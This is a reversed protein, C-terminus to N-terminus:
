TAQDIDPNSWQSLDATRTGAIFGNGIESLYRKLTSIKNNSIFLDLMWRVLREQNLYLNQTLLKELKYQIQKKDGNLITRIEKVADSRFREVKIVDRLNETSDSISPEIMLKSVHDDSLVTTPIKIGQFYRLWQATSISTQKQQNTLVQVLQVDLYTEPLTQWYIAIYQLYSSKHISKVTFNETTFEGLRKIVQHYKPFENQIQLQHQLKFLWLRSIDDIIILRTQYVEGVEDEITVIENGYDSSLLKIPIVLMDGFMQYIPKGDKLSNYIEKLIKEDNYGAFSILSFLFWSICDLLSFTTKQQWRDLAQTVINQAESLYLFKDFDNINKPRQPRVAIIPKPLLPLCKAKRDENINNFFRMREFLAFPLLHASVNKEIEKYLSEYLDYIQEDTILEASQNTQLFTDWANQCLEETHQLAQKRRDQAEKSRRLRGHLSAPRIKKM